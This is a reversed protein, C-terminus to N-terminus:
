FAGQLRRTAPKPAFPVSHAPSEYPAGSPVAQTRSLHTAAPASYWGAIHGVILLLLATEIFVRAALTVGGRKRDRQAVPM